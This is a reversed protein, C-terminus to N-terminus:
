PLSIHDAAAHAKVTEIALEEFAKMTATPPTAHRVLCCTLDYTDIIPIFRVDPRPYTAIASAGVIHVALGAACLDLVEEMSSARPGYRPLFDDAHPIGSWLAQDTASGVAVFCEASIEELKLETREAFRHGSSVLLVRSEKWLPVSEFGSLAPEGIIPALAADIQGKRLAKVEEGFALRGVQVQVDTLQRVAAALIRSGTLTLIPAGIRFAARGTGYDARWAEIDKLALVARRAMPLLQAGAPTLDVQRSTRLFLDIKLRRELTSIQQSLASPTIALREAARTFHREEAVALFYRLQQITLDVDVKGQHM